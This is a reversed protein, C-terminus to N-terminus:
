EISATDSAKITKTILSTVLAILLTAGLIILPYVVFVLLPNIVFSMSNIGMSKFIPLITLYTLPISLAGAIIVAILTSISFRLAHYAIIKRDKFGIAKMIAIERKEDSIFSREILVVVLAVVVLTIGLLLKQVAEMTPVVGICEAQFESPLKVEKIGLYEKILKARKKITNQSPNDTFNIQFEMWSVASKLTTPVDEHIRIIEGLMNMSQFIATIMMDKAGEGYDITITDGITADIKKAMVQTIAIEYMNTPASGKFFKYNDMTIRKGQQCLISYEQGKSTVPFMYQVDVFTKCPMGLNNLDTEVTELYSLLEADGGDKMFSMQKDIDPYYLHSRSAFTDILGDSKMTTVTNTLVLVFAACLAFISAITIHKKKNSFVDNIAMFFTSNTKSKSLKLPSKRNFREGTQGNRIADVPTAKKVTSTSLYAFGLISIIVIVVGIINPIFGLTSGLMMSETVSALLLSGFPFSLAFGVLSGIIAISLYKSLFLSRIKFNKIGIAKMVGIEGFEEAISFSISFKLIIFSVIMMCVSLILTIFAVIMDMIYGMKITSRPRSLMLGPVKSVGVDVAHNDDTDIYAFEGLSLNNLNEPKTYKEFDTKSLFVRANSLMESGFIADKLQGDYVLDITYENGKLHLTDGVKIKNQKAFSVSGYFHGDNVNKVKKNEKSFYNLPSTELCNVLLTNDVEVHNGDDKILYEKNIFATEEVRFSKIEAINPLVDNFSTNTEDGKKAAIYDGAGAQDLFYDTGNSITIVNNLGSAVFMSALIVFLVMIINMTKKRKLDKKLIRVFM